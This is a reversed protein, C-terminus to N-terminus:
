IDHSYFSKSPVHWSISTVWDLWPLPHSQTDRELIHFSCLVRFLILHFLRWFLDSVHLASVFVSMAFLWQFTGFHEFDLFFCDLITIACAQLLWSYSFLYHMSIALLISHAREFQDLLRGRCLCRWRLYRSTESHTHWVNKVPGRPSKRATSAMNIKQVSRWHM